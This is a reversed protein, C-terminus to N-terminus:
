APSVPQTETRGMAVSIQRVNAHEVIISDEVWFIGPNAPEGLARFRDVFQRIAGQDIQRANIVADIYTSIEGSDYIKWDVTIFTSQKSMEAYLAPASIIRAECVDQFEQSFQTRFGFFRKGRGFSIAEKKGFMTEPFPHAQDLQERVWDRAVEFAKQEPTALRAYFYRKQKSHFFLIEAQTLAQDAPWDESFVQDFVVGDPRQRLKNKQRIWAAKKQRRTKLQRVQDAKFSRSGM